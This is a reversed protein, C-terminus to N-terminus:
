PMLGEGRPEAEAAGRLAQRGALCASVPLPSNHISLPRSLRRIDRSRRSGFTHINRGGYGTREATRRNVSSPSHGVPRLANWELLIRGRPFSRAPRNAEPERREAGQDQRAAANRRVLFGRSRDARRADHARVRPFRGGGPLGRNQGVPDQSSFVVVKQQVRPPSAPEKALDLPNQRPNSVRIWGHRLYRYPFSM